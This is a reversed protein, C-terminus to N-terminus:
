LRSLFCVAIVILINVIGMVAVSLYAINLAFDGHLAGYNFYLVSMKSASVRRIM